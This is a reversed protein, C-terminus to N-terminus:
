IRADNRIPYGSEGAITDGLMWHVNYRTIWSTFPFLSGIYQICGQQTLRLSWIWERVSPEKEVHPTVVADKALKELAKQEGTLQQQSNAHFVKNAVVTTITNTCMKINIIANTISKDTLLITRIPLKYHLHMIAIRPSM